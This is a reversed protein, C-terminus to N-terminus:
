AGRSFSELDPALNAGGSILAEMEDETFAPRGYMPDLHSLYESAVNGTNQVSLASNDVVTRKKKWGESGLFHISPIRATKSPTVNNLIPKLESTPPTSSEAVEESVPAAFEAAETDIQYLDSGVEITDDSTVNNTIM